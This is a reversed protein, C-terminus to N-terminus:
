GPNIRLDVKSGNGIEKIIDQVSKIEPEEAIIEYAHTEHAYV